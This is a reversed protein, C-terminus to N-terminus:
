GKDFDLDLDFSPMEDSKKSAAQGNSPTDTDFDLVDDMFDLAGGRPTIDEDRKEQASHGSSNSSSAPPPPPSGSPPFDNQSDLAGLAGGGGDGGGARERKLAEAAAGDGEDIVRAAELILLETPIDNTKEASLLADYVYIRGESWRMLDLMAPFGQMAGAEIHTVQGGNIYISGVRGDNAFIRLTRHCRKQYFMQVLDLLELGHLHPHDPIEPFLLQNIMRTLWDTAIPRPCIASAGRKLAEDRMGPRMGSKGGGGIFILFNDPGIQERIPDIMDLGMVDPLRQDLLVIRPRNMALSMADFGSHARYIEMQSPFTQNLHQELEVAEDAKGLALLIVITESESASLM